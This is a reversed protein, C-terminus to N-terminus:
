RLHDEGNLRNATIERLQKAEAHVNQRPKEPQVTLIILTTIEKTAAISTTMYDGGSHKM